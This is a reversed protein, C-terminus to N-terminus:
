SESEDRAVTGTAYVRDVSLRTVFSGTPARGTASDDSRGNSLGRRGLLRAVPGPRSMLIREGAASRAGVKGTDPYEVVRARGDDLADPRPDPRRQREVGPARRRKRASLRRRGGRGLQQEGEPTRLTPEGRSSSSGSRTRTTCTTRGSRPRGAGARVHQGGLLEAGLRAGVWGDKSAGDQGSRSGIGSTATLNFIKMFAVSTRSGASPSRSPPESPVRWTARATRAAAWAGLGHPGGRARRLGGLERSAPRHRFSVRGAAQGQEIVRQIIAFAEGVEEM